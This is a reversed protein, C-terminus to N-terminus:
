SLDVIEDFLGLEFANRASLTIADECLKVVEAYSIKSREHLVTYYIKNLVSLENELAEFFKKDRRIDSVDNGRSSKHSLLEDMIHISHFGAVAHPYILRRDGAQALFLASSAAVGKVVTWVATGNKSIERLTDFIATAATFVGGQSSIIVRLPTDVPLGSSKELTLDIMSDFLYLSGDDITGVLYVTKEKEMAGIFLEDCRKEKAFDSDSM